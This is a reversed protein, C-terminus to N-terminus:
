TCLTRCGLVKTLRLSPREDEASRPTSPWTTLAGALLELLVPAAATRFDGRLERRAVDLTFYDGLKVSGVDEYFIAQIREVLAKRKKVDREPALEALLQEKEENCWWGQVHLPVRRPARPRRHLRSGTSRCTGCSRSRRARQNLTAWDVVQLDIVFGVQELQQKAVLANKYM